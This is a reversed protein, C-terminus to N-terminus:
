RIRQGNVLVNGLENIEISSTLSDETEGPQSFMAIGMRAGMADQPSVVGMTILKDILANAGEVLVRAQGQPRAFGDFTRLDNWDFTFAGGGAAKVGLMDVSLADITVESIEGPIDAQEMMMAEEPNMLDFYWKGLGSLQIDISAPDRPLIQGPDFLNWIGDAVTLDILTTDFQFPGEVNKAFPMTIRSTARGISTQFPFPLERPMLFNLAMGEVSAGYDLQGKGFAFDFSTGADQYDLRFTGDSPDSVDMAMLTPGLTYSVTLASDKSFQSMNGNSLGDLDSLSMSTDVALQQASASFVVSGNENTDEFGFKADLSGVVLNGSYNEFPQDMGLLVSNGTITDFVMEFNASVSPDDTRLDTMRITIADGSMAF